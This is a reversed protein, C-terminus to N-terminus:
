PDNHEFNLLIQQRCSFNLFEKKTYMKIYINGNPYVYM